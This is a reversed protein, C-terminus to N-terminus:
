VEHLEERVDQAMAYYALTTFQNALGTEKEPLYGVEEAYDWNESFWIVMFNYRYYIVWQHGEVLEDIFGDPYVDPEEEIRDRVMQALNKIAANYDARTLGAVRDAGLEVSSSM